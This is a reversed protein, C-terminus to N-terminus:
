AKREKYYTGSVTVGGFSELMDPTFPRQTANFTKAIDVDSVDRNDFGFNMKMNPFSWLHYQNAADVLRENAPYLEIAEADSGLVENKIRQLDRWDHITARDNRKISLHVAEGFPEGCMVKRLLVTYRSNKLCLHFGGAPGAITKGNITVTDCVIFPTWPPTPNTKRKKDARSSM